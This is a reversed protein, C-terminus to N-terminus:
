WCCYFAIFWCVWFRIFICSIYISNFWSCCLVFNFFITFPYEFTVICFIFYYICCIYLKYSCPYKFSIFVTYCVFKFTSGRTLCQWCCDFAIFWCVLITICIFCIYCWCLRCSFLVYICFVITFPYELAVISFIFCYILCIYLKYSCPYEFSIFVTYGVFKFTPCWTLCQWCCDFAIFWCVM